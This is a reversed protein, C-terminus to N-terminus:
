TKRGQEEHDEGAIDATLGYNLGIFVTGYRKALARGESCMEVLVMHDDPSMEGEYDKELRYNWVADNVASLIIDQALTRAETKTM